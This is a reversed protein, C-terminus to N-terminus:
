YKLSCYCQLFSWSSLVKVHKQLSVRRGEEGDSEGALRERERGVRLASVGNEETKCEEM